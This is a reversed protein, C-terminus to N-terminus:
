GLKKEVEEIRTVIKEIEEQAEKIQEDLKFETSPDNEISRKERLRSLKKRLLNYPPQLDELQQELRRRKSSTLTNSPMGIPESESVTEMQNIKKINKNTFLIPILHEPTLQNQNDTEPDIPVLKRQQSFPESYELHIRNCGFQYARAISEGSGLAGYFAESFIIASRDLIPQNMGIVFNIHKIIEEAQIKTHCANLLVCEIRDSFYSFLNALAESSVLHLQGADNELILGKEGEGHGCFHVIRPKVELLATQLDKPRVAWRTEIIFRDREPSRKIAEMLNRIETPLELFGTGKPNSALILIKTKM